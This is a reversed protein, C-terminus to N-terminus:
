RKTLCLFNSIKSNVKFKNMLRMNRKRKITTVVNVLIRINKHLTSPHIKVQLNLIMNPFNSNGEMINTLHTKDM